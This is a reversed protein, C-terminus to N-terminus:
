WAETVVPLKACYRWYSFNVASKPLPHEGIWDTFDGALKGRGLESRNLTKM